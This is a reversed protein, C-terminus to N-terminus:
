GSLALYVLGAVLGLGLGMVMGWPIPTAEVIERWHDDCWAGTIPRHPHVRTHGGEGCVECTGCYGDPVDQFVELDPHKEREGCYCDAREEATM